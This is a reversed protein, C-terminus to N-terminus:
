RGTYLEAVSLGGGAGAAVLAQRLPAVLRGSARQGDIGRLLARLATPLQPTVLAVVHDTGFPPTM